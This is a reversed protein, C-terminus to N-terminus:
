SPAINVRLKQPHANQLPPCEQCAYKFAITFSSIGIPPVIKLTTPDLYVGKHLALFLKRRTKTDGPSATSDKPEEAFQCGDCIQVWIEGNNAQEAGVNKASFVATVVGNVVPLSVEDLLKEDTPDVPWFTFQLRASELHEGRSSTSVIGLTNAREYMPESGSTPGFFRLKAKYQNDNEKTLQIIERFTYLRTLIVIYFQIKNEGGIPFREPLGITLRARCTGIEIEKHWTVTGAGWESDSQPNSGNPISKVVTLRVDDLPTDTQNEQMMPAYGDVVQGLFGIFGAPAPRVAEAPLTSPVAGLGDRTKPLQDTQQASRPVVLMWLSVSVCGGLMFVVISSLIPYRVRLTPINAGFEMWGWGLLTAAAFFLSLWGIWKKDPWLLTVSTSILSLIFGAVGIRDGFSM